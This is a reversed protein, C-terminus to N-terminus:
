GEAIVFATSSDPTHSISIHWIKVGLERAVKAVEGDIQIIPQGLATQLIEVETLSAGDKIGTGLCKLVAEKGAYRGSLFRDTKHEQFLEFERASLIRQLKRSNSVWDLHKTTEHDVVDCGIGIIM